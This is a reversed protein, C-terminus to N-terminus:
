MGTCDRAIDNNPLGRNLVRDLFRPYLFSYSMSLLGEVPYYSSEDSADYCIILGDILPLQPWKSLGGNTTQAEIEIVELVHSTKGSPSKELDIRGTRRIDTM